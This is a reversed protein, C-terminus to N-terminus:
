QDKLHTALFARVHGWADQAAEFDYIANSPNAFAHQADYSHIEHPIGYQELSVEFAAVHEPTISRDQEAFIGCVAAGLHELEPGTVLRGYYIVCADLGENELATQLSWGGGFCWGISGTKTARIRPDSLLFAHAAKVIETAREADVSQMYAMASDSSTAVRGEYLDVALAAYGEAALRDSWHRINDNLGWWEHVVVIGPHPADGEPLSLYARTGMLDITEGLPAPAKEQTLVHLAKFEEESLSGMMGAADEGGASKTEAPADSGQGASEDAGASRSDACGLVVLTLALSLRSLRSTSSGM